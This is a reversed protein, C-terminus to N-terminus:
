LPQVLRGQMVVSTAQKLRRARVSVSYGDVGPITALRTSLYRYFDATDRCIVSVMVNHDGSIAAAFSVEEHGALAVGVEELATPAVRLWVTASLAFGLREPLLEVDYALAGCRELAHLRRSVRGVTTGTVEALRRHSLRGDDSLADVLARDESRVPGDAGGTSDIASPDIASPDPASPDASGSLASRADTLVARAEDDLDGGFGTWRFESGGTFAHLILEISVDLVSTNKPLERLLVHDDAHGIPARIVCIIETGGSAIHAYAIDPRRILARALDDVRDPRCRLRAIWETDADPTPVGVVRVVGARRMAQYRRAATQESVGATDGLLRFPARPHVQLARLITHDVTDM